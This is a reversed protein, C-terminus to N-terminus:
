SVVEEISKIRTEHDYEHWADHEMDPSYKPPTNPARVWVCVAVNETPLRPYTRSRRM